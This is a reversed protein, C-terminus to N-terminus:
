FPLCFSVLFRVKDLPLLRLWSNSVHLSFALRSCCSDPFLLLLSPIPLNRSFSYIICQHLSGFFQYLAGDFNPTILLFRLLLSPSLFLTESKNITHFHFYHHKVPFPSSPFSFPSTQCSIIFHHRHIFFIYAPGACSCGIDPNYIKTNHIIIGQSSCISQKLDETASQDCTLSLGQDRQIKPRPRENHM